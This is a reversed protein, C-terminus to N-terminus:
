RCASHLIPVSKCICQSGPYNPASSRLAGNRGPVVTIHRSKTATVELDGSRERRNLELGYLAVQEQIRDEVSDELAQIVERTSLNSLM